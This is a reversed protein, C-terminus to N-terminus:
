SAKYIRSTEMRTAVDLIIDSGVSIDNSKLIGNVTEYALDPHNNEDSLHGLLIQRTGSLTLQVALKAAAENSLHGLDSKIRRKLFAPYRCVDLMNLDHNAELLVMDSNALAAVATDSIHGMDTAVAAKKAGNFFAYGVPDAADHPIEFPQVAIDGIEFEAGNKFTKQNSEAVNGIKDLMAIFTATNAYIPLDYRRSMVGVSHTHDSHEHTVLIADLDRPSVDIDSLCSEVNKGSIGCDVLIKTKETFVLVANGRSGSRLSCIQLNSMKKEL